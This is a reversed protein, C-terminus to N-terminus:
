QHLEVIQSKDPKPIFVLLCIIFYYSLCHVIDYTFFFFCSNNMPQQSVALMSALKVNFRLLSILSMLM